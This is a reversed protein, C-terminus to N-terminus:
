TTVRGARAVVRVVVVPPDDEAVDLHRPLRGAAHLPALLARARAAFAATAAADDLDLVAADDRLARLGETPSPPPAAGPGGGGDDLAMRLRDDRRM